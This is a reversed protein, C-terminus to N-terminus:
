VRRYVIQRVGWEIDSREDETAALEQLQAEMAEVGDPGVRALVFPESKWNQLNMWFMAAADAKAVPLRAVESRERHLGQLDPLGHLARGVYLQNGQHALLDALVQLYAGLVAHDTQIENADEVVLHGGPRLQSAWRAFLVGPERLHTMLFRGYLLDAPGVPFPVATVDHEYFQIRDTAHARALDIFRGSSDLGVVRRSRVTDALFQTCVGPGCGLDIALEPASAALEKLLPESTPRFVRNLVELRRAALDSDGFVYRSRM